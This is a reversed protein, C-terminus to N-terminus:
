EAARAKERQCPVGGAGQLVNDKYEPHETLVECDCLYGGRQTRYSCEPHHKNRKTARAIEWARPFDVSM